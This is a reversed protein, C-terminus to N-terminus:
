SLQWKWHSWPSSWEKGTLDFDTYYRGWPITSLVLSLWMRVRWLHWRNNGYSSDSHSLSLPPSCRPDQGHPIWLRTALASLSRSASPPFHSQPSVVSSVRRNQRLSFLSGPSAPGNLEPKSPHKLSSHDLLPFLCGSCISSSGDLSVLSISQLMCPFNSDNLKHPMNCFTELAVGLPGRPRIRCAM